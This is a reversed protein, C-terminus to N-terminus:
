SNCWDGSAGTAALTVHMPAAVHEHVPPLGHVAVGYRGGGHTRLPACCRLSRHMLTRHKEKAIARAPTVRRAAQLEVTTGAPASEPEGSDPLLGSDPPVGPQEGGGPAAPLPEVRPPHGASSGAAPAAHLMMPRSQVHVRSQGVACVVSVPHHVAPPTQCIAAPWHWAPQGASEIPACLKQPWPL